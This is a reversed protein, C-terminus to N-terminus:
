KYRAYSVFMGATWLASMVPWVWIGSLRPLGVAEMLGYATTLMLTGIVTYVFSDVYIKQQMEDMSRFYHLNASVMLPVTLVPLVAIVYRWPAAPHGFKIWLMAAVVSLVYVAIAVSVERILRRM